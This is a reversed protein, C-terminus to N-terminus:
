FYYFSLFSLLLVFFLFSKLYLILTFTMVDQSCWFLQANFRKTEILYNITDDLITTNNINDLDDKSYLLIETLQENDFDFINPVICSVTNLCTMRELLYDTCHLLYYHLKLIKAVIAYQILLARFITSLNTNM